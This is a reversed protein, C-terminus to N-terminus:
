HIVVTELVDRLKAGETVAMVSLARGDMFGHLYAAGVLECHYGSATDADQVRRFILPVRSRPVVWVTDGEQLNQSGLGLYGKATLFPRLFRGHSFTLAYEAKASGSTGPIPAADSAAYLDHWEKNGSCFENFQRKLENWRPTKQRTRTTASDVRERFWKAFGPGMTSPKRPAVREEGATNTILTRWLVELGSEETIPYLSPLSLLMALLRPFPNGKWIEEKPEGRYSIEDVKFAKLTVTNEDENVDAPWRALKEERSLFTDPPTFCADASYRKLGTVRLGLASGVSWDPVWSPLAVGDLDVEQFSKGEVSALVLLDECDRLLQIAVNLYTRGVSSRDGFEPRLLPLKGVDVLDQILGLLAYVKDEENTAKFDRSRILSHLLITAWHDSKMSDKVAKLITPIAYSSPRRLELAQLTLKEDRTEFYERWTGTSINHSAKSLISWSISHKGCYVIVQRALAVEQIIWARKWYTREFLKATSEWHERSSVINAVMEGTYDSPPRTGFAPLYTSTALAELHAFAQEIHDDSKGLWTIVSEASEYIKAMMTSVQHSREDPDEQNICIADVWFKTSSLDLSPAKAGMSSNDSNGGSAREDTQSAPSSAEVHALFGALNQTVKVVGTEFQVPSEPINSMEGLHGDPLPAGWTYSVAYYRTQDDSLSCVELKWKRQSGDAPTRALSILRIQHPGVRYKKYDLASMEGTEALATM